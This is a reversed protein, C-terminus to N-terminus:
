KINEYSGDIVKGIWEKRKLVWTVQKGEKAMKGYQNDNDPNQTIFRFGMVDVSRVKGEKYEKVSNTGIVSKGAFLQEAVLPASESLDKEETRFSNFASMIIEDIQKRLTPGPIFQAHMKNDKGRRSPLGVFHGGKGDSVVRFGKIKTETEPLIIDCFAKIKSDDESSRIRDIQIEM